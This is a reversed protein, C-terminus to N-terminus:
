GKLTAIKKGTLHTITENVKFGGVGWKKNNCNDDATKLCNASPQYLFYNSKDALVDKIILSETYESHTSHIGQEIESMSQAQAAELLLVFPNLDNTTM